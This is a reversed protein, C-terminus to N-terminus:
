AGGEHPRTTADSPKDPVIWYADPDVDIWEKDIVCYGAQCEGTDASGCSLLQALDCDCKSARRFLGSYGHEVLYTRVIERVIPNPAAKESM